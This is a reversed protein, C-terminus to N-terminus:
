AEELLDLGDDALPVCLFEFQLALVIGEVLAEDDVVVRLGDDFADIAADDGVGGFAFAHQGDEVMVVRDAAGGVTKPWVLLFVQGVLFLWM